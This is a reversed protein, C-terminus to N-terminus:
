RRQLIGDYTGSLTYTLSADADPDTAEVPGVINEGGEANEDVNRTTTASPFEPPENVNTVRVDETKMESGVEVM